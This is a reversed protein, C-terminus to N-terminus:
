STPLLQHYAAKYRQAIKKWTFVHQQTGVFELSFSAIVAGLQLCEKLSWNRVYAYLFGARFADGAGTPDVVKKLPVAAVSEEKFVPLNSFVKAGQHGYTVVCVPVMQAIATESLMMTECLTQMEFENLILLEASSLGTLITAPPLVFVQPGIDFCWRRTSQSLETIQNIMTQPDHSSVVNFTDTTPLQSFVLPLDDAMAGPYFGGVQRGARDTVVFFTATPLKSFRVASTDVGLKALNAIYSQHDQGIRAFLLPHEGMLALSYSINGAIGGLSSQYGSALVSASLSEIKEPRLHDAWSGPFNMIHDIALSGSLVIQM